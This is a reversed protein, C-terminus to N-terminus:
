REHFGLGVGNMGRNFGSTQDRCSALVMSATHRILVVKPMLWLPQGWCYTALLKRM